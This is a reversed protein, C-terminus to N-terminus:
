IIDPDSLFYAGSFLFAPLFGVRGLHRVDATKIDYIFLLICPSVPPVFDATPNRNLGDLRSFPLGTGTLSDRRM